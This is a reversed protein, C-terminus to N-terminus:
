TSTTSINRYSTLSPASPSDDFVVAEAGEADGLHFLWDPNFNWVERGQDDIPFLGAVSVDSQAIAVHTMACLIAVFLFTRKIM